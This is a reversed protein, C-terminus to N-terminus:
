GGVEGLGKVENEWYRWSPFILGFNLASLEFHQSNNSFYEKMDSDMRFDTRNVEKTQWM